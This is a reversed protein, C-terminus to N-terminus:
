HELSLVALRVLNSGHTLISNVGNRGGCASWKVVSSGLGKEQCFGSDNNMSVSASSGRAM